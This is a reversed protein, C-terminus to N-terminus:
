SSVSSSFHFAATFYPFFLTKSHRTVKLFYINIRDYREPDSHFLLSNIMKTITMQKNLPSEFSNEFPNRTIGTYSGTLILFHFNQLFTSYLSKSGSEWLELAIVEASNHSYHPSFANIEPSIERWYFKPYPLM